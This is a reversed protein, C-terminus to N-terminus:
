TPESLLLQADHLQLPASLREGNLKIHTHGLQLRGSSFLTVCAPLLCHELKLVRAALSEPSDDPTIPIRAQAILPGGDLEPTIVHVSVGHEADGAALARAHTDLGPYRPLLSPHINIIPVSLLGLAAASIVRMYGACVILDPQSQLAREFLAEDFSIRDSHDKRNVHAADIGAQRALDLAGADARDSYVGVVKFGASPAKSADLLAALNSGRGSALVAVRLM